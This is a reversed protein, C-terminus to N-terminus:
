KGKIAWLKCPNETVVYLVGGEAVAPTRVRGRMRVTGVLEKKRGHKFVLVQGNDNGIYVHGGALYPSAWTQADMDHEWYKRGTRADFCYVFGDFDAAYCLGEHVACTSLTRGFHYARDADEEATAGGVHWVLASDKNRADKPDFRSPAEARPASWPSLDGGKAKPRKTVDICWLHGVGQKHEPDEGVGVYLRGDKVTPSAIFHNRTGRGGLRYVAGQPNCDFTWLLEGKNPEFSYLRGDGGPFIVQKRGGAETYVPNSWQGHMIGRGPLKSSWRVKGTRRDVALFSPADPAPIRTHEGDVGNGTVVFVTDGVVLPSGCALNHPLVGLDKKMDLKWVVLGTAADACVLECRNSVYYIRDGVAAPCSQIGEEPWDHVRGEPLKDHVIQWLFKGDSARLCMMVGRDGRIAPDRPNQNNTGIFIRGGHVCPGWVSAKTGLPVSWLVNAGTKADWSTPLAPTAPGVPGRAPWGFMPAPPPPVPAPAFVAALILVANM